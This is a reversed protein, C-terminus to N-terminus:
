VGIVASILLALTAGTAFGKIGNMMEDVKTAVLAEIDTDAVEDITIGAEELKEKVEEYAKERLLTDLGKKGESLLASATNIVASGM